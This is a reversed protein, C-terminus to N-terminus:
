VRESFLFLLIVSLTLSVKDERVFRQNCIHCVYEQTHDREMHEKLGGENPFQASCVKCTIAVSHRKLHNQFVTQIFFPTQCVPCLYLPKGTHELAKHELLEQQSAASFRCAKCTLEGSYHQKLHAILEERSRSQFCSCVTCLYLIHGKAGGEPAKSSTAEKLVLLQFDGKHDHLFQDASIASDKSEEPKGTTDEKHKDDIVLRGEDDENDDMGDATEVYVDFGAHKGLSRSSFATPSVEKATASSTAKVVASDQEVTDPEDGAMEAGIINESEKGGPFHVSLQLDEDLHYDQNDLACYDPKPKCFIRVSRWVGPERCDGSNELREEGPEVKISSRMTRRKGKGKTNSRRRKLAYYSSEWEDDSSETDSDSDSWEIKKLSTSNRKRRTKGGEERGFTEKTTSKESESPAHQGRRRKKQSPSTEFRSDSAELNKDEKKLRPRGRKRKEQKKEGEIALVECVQQSASESRGPVDKLMRESEDKQELEKLWKPKRGRKKWQLIQATQEPECNPETTHTVTGPHGDKEVVVRCARLQPKQADTLPIREVGVFSELARKVVSADAMVTLQPKKRQRGEGQKSQSTDFTVAAEPCRGQSHGDGQQEEAESSHSTSGSQSPNHSDSSQPSDQHESDLKIISTDPMAPLCQASSIRAPPPGKPAISMFTNTRKIVEMPSPNSPRIQLPPPPTNPPKGKPLIPQNKKPLIQEMKSVKTDAKVSEFKHSHPTYDNLKCGESDRTHAKNVSVTDDDQGTQSLGPPGWLFKVKVRNLMEAMQRMAEVPLDHDLPLVLIRRKVAELKWFIKPGDRDLFIWVVDGPLFITQPVYPDKEEKNKDEEDLKGVPSHDNEKRGDEVAKGAAGKIDERKKVVDSKAKKKNKLWQCDPLVQVLQKAPVKANRLTYPGTYVVPVFIRGDDLVVPGKEKMDQHEFLLLKAIDLVTKDSVSLLNLPTACYQNSNGVEGSTEGGEKGLSVASNGRSDSTTETVSQQPKTSSLRAKLASYQAENTKLSSQQHKLLSQMRKPPSQRPKSVVNPAPELTDATAACVQRTKSESYTNDAISAPPEKPVLSEQVAAPPAAGQAVAPDVLQPRQIHIGSLVHGQSMIPPLFLVNSSTNQSLFGQQQSAVGAPIGVTNPAVVPQNGPAVPSNQQNTNLATSSAGPKFNGTLLIIGNGNPNPVAIQVQQGTSPTTALRGVMQSLTALPNSASVAPKYSSTVATKSVKLPKSEASSTSIESSSAASVQPATSAAVSVSLTSTASAPQTALVTAARSRPTQVAIHQPTLVPMLQSGAQGNLLITNQFTQQAAQLLNQQLLNQQLATQTSQLPNHFLTQSSQLLNQPNQLITQPLRILGRPTQILTPPTQQLTPATQQLTRPAQQLTQVTPIISQQPRVITVGSSFPVHQFQAQATATVNSVSAPQNQSPIVTM